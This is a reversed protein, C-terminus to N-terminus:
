IDDDFLTGSDPAGARPVGPMPRSGSHGHAKAKRGSAVHRGNRRRPAHSHGLSFEPAQQRRKKPAPKRRCIRGGAIEIEVGDIIPAPTPMRRIM